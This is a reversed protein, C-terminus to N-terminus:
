HLQGLVLERLLWSQTTDLSLLGQKWAAKRYSDILDQLDLSEHGFAALPQGSASEGDDNWEITGLTSVEQPTPASLFRTLEDAAIEPPIDALSNHLPHSVMALACALIGEHLSHIIGLQEEPFQLPEIVPEIKGKAKAFCRLFGGPQSCAMRMLASCSDLLQARDSPEGNHCLYSQYRYAPLQPTQAQSFTNLYYATLNHSIKEHNLISLLSRQIVNDGGFDVLACPHNKLGGKQELYLLLAKREIVSRRTLATIVDPHRMLRVLRIPSTHPDIPDDLSRVGAYAFAEMLPEPKLDLYSFFERAPRRNGGALLTMVDQSYECGLSPVVFARKSAHLISATPLDPQVARLIQYVQHLIASGSSFFFAQKIHEERWRNALWFTFGTLVPGFVECGLQFALDPKPQSRSISLATGRLLSEKKLASWEGHRSRSRPTALTFPHTLHPMGAIRAGEADTKTSGISLVTSPELRASRCAHRLLAGNHKGQHSESSVFLSEHSVSYGARELLELLFEKEHCSDAIFLLRKKSEVAEQALRQIPFNVRCLAREITQEAAICQAIKDAPLGVDSVFRGYIETLSAEAFGTQQRRAECMDREAQVRLERISEGSLPLSEFPPLTKLFLFVDKSDLITRLLATDFIDLAIAEAGPLAQTWEKLFAEELPEQQKQALELGFQQRTAQIKKHLKILSDSDQRTWGGVSM